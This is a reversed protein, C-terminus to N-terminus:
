ETKVTDTATELINEKKFELNKLPIDVILDENGDLEPPELPDRGKSLVKTLEMDNHDPCTGPEDQEYGCEPCRYLDPMFEQNASAEPLFLEDSEKEKKAEEKKSETKRSRKQKEASFLTDSFFLFGTSLLALLTLSVVAKKQKKLGSDTM